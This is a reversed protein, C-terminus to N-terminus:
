SLAQPRPWFRLKFDRLLGLLEGNLILRNPQEREVWPVQPSPAADPLRQFRGGPLAPTQPLHLKDSHVYHVNHVNNPCVESWLSLFFLAQFLKSIRLDKEEM